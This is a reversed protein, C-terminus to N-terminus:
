NMYPMTRNVTQIHIKKQVQSGGGGWGKRSAVGEGGDNTSHPFSWGQLGYRKDVQGWPRLITLPYGSPDFKLKLIMLLRFDLIFLMPM